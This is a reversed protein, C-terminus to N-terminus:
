YGFMSNVDAGTYGGPTSGGNRNLIKNLIQNNQYGQIATGVGGFAGSMANAQGVRGAAQANGLDGYLSGIQNASNTNNAMMSGAAGQGVAQQGTLMNYTQSQRGTFRQQAAGAQQNGYDNGFRTLAKLTAGSDYGGNAIARENIGKTGQDLGFQMGKQYPVDAALDAENFQRTLGGTDGNSYTAPDVGAAKLALPVYSNLVYSASSPDSAELTAFTANGDNAHTQEYLDIAAQRATKGNPLVIGEPNGANLGLLNTLRDTAATGVKSYPRMALQNAFRAQRQEGIAASAAESQAKAADGAADAGMMGGLLSGGAQILAGATAQDIM